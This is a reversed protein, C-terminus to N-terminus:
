QQSARRQYITLVPGGIQPQGLDVRSLADYDVRWAYPDYRFLVTPRIEAVPTYFMDVSQQFAASYQTAATRKMWNVTVLYDIGADSYLQASPVQGVKVGGRTEEDLRFLQTVRYGPGDRRSARMARIEEKEFYTRAKSAVSEFIADSVPIYPGLIDLGETAMTANPPINSQIWEAAVARTDPQTLWYDFRIANMLPPICLALAIAALAIESAMPSIWRKTWAFFDYLINAAAISLVPLLPLAYRAYNPGGNLTLFLLAPFILLILDRSRRRYLLYLVGMLAVSELALGMGGALHETLYFLWVPQGEPSVWTVAARNLVFWKMYGAWAPFQILAYPTAAFFAMGASDLGILIEKSFLRRRAAAGWNRWTVIAHATVLPVILFVVTYQAAAGLGAFLGALLYNRIRSDELIKISFFLALVSFLTTLAYVRMYHSEAIDLFTSALFFAAVLGVTRHYFRRGLVYVALVSGTSAVASVLRGTLALWSPDQYYVRFFEFAGPMTQHALAILPYWLFLLIYTLLSGHEYTLMELNNGVAFFVDSFTLREDWHYLPFNIGYVRVGLALVVILALLINHPTIHRKLKTEASQM